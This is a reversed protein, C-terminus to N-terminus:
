CGEAEKMQSTFWCSMSSHYWLAQLRIIPRKKMQCSLSCHRSGRELIQLIMIVTAPLPIFQGRHLYGSRPLHETSDRHYEYEVMEFGEEEPRTMEEKQKTERTTEEHIPVPIDSLERYEQERYEQEGVDGTDAHDANNIFDLGDYGTAILEKIVPNSPDLNYAEFVKEKEEEKLWRSSGHQYQGVPVPIEIDDTEKMLDSQYSRSNQVFFLVCCLIVFCEFSLFLMGQRQETFLGSICEWLPILTFTVAERSLMKHMAASFFLNLLTGLGALISGM